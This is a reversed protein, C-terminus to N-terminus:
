IYFYYGLTRFIGSKTFRYKNLIRIKNAKNCAPLSIYSDLIERKQEDLEKYYIRKFEKAQAYTKNLADHVQTGAIAKKVLYPLSRINKAGVENNGHQRYKILKHNMFQVKGFASAILGFWWDHMIYERPFQRIKNVLARNIMMTCGTINNQVLYDNFLVKKSDLNQQYFMSQALTNLDKDVVILDGHILLPTEKGYKAVMKEMTKLTVKIKDPLWVDDHDSFMIFEAEALELMSMFNQKASGSNKISDKVIIKGPFKKEYEKIIELTADTSKDDKIILRWNSYTQSVISDIQQKIYREGNYAALLIDIM